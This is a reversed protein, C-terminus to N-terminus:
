YLKKPYASRGVSGLDLNKLGQEEITQYQVRIIANSYQRDPLLWVAPDRSAPQHEDYLHM